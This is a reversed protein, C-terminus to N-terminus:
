KYFQVKILEFINDLYPRIHQKVIAILQALQQFLFERFNAEAVRVVHLLSPMVQAIYPVCKIGLSKFIFHIAQVVMTHHQALTPDRIIRMLTAIAIAPYYEELTASSMNVLMESTTLDQSAEAETQDTISLLVAAESQADIQGLNMKHKYPDLAGLLGLVRLTERRIAPIQETKLFSLLTDLLAPYESYPRIV